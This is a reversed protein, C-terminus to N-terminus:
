INLYQYIARFYEAHFFRACIKTIYIDLYTFMIDFTKLNNKSIDVYQFYGIKSVIDLSTYCRGIDLYQSNFSNRM